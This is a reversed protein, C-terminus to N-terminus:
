VSRKVTGNPTPCTAPWSPPCRPAHTSSSAPRPCAHSRTVAVYVLRALAPHVTGADDPLTFGPGIRVRNWERGKAKHVTSVVVRAQEEDSM